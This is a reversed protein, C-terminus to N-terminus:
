TPPFHDPMEPGDKIPSFPLVATTHRYATVTSGPAEQNTPDPGATTESTPRPSTGRRPLSSAGLHRRLRTPPGPVRSLFRLLCCSPAPCGGGGPINKRKLKFISNNSASEGLPPEKALHNRTLFRRRLLSAVVVNSWCKRTGQVPLEM